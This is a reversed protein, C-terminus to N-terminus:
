WPEIQIDKEFSWIHKNQDSILTIVNYKFLFFVFEHNKEKFLETLYKIINEFLLYGMILTM